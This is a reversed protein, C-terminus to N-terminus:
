KPAPADLQQREARHREMMGRRQAMKDGLLKRQEPTLVKAADLMAQLMRKSAADHQAMKQQRLAEAARADVSPQTFVSLSQEQLKRGSDHLAALDKHAAEMIAKVQARQDPTANVLDLMRSMHRGGMRGHMGGMDGAGGMGHQMGHGGMPGDVPAALATQSVLGAVAVSATALTIRLPSSLLKMLFETRNDITGM